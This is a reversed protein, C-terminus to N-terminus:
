ATRNLKAGVRSQFNFRDPQAMSGHNLESNPFAPRARSGTGWVRLAFNTPNTQIPKTTIHKTQMRERLSAVVVKRENYDFVRVVLLANRIREPGNEGRVANSLSRDWYTMLTQGVEEAKFKRSM